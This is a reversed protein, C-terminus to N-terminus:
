NATKVLRLIMQTQKIILNWDYIGGSKFKMRVTTSKDVLQICFKFIYPGWNPQQYAKNEARIRSGTKRAVRFLLRTNSLM